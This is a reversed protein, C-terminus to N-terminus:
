GGRPNASGLNIPLGGEGGAVRWTPVPRMLSPATLIISTSPRQRRPSLAVRVDTPLPGPASPQRGEKRDCEPGCGGQLRGRQRPSPTEPQSSAAFFLSFRGSPGRRQERRARLPGSVSPVPAPVSVGQPPCLAAGPPSTLLSLTGECCLRQLLSYVFSPCSPSFSPFHNRYEPGQPRPPRPSRSACSCGPGCSRCCPAPRRCLRGQAASATPRPRSWGQSGGSSSADVAM